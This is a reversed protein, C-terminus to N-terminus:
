HINPETTGGGSSRGPKWVDPAALLSVTVLPFSDSDRLALRATRCRLVALVRGTLLNTNPAAPRATLLQM